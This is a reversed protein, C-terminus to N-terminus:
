SGFCGDRCKEENAKKMREWEALIDDIKMQGTIQREVAAREPLVMSIQGDTEQLLVDALEGPLQAQKEM